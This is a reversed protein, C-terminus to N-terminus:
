SKRMRRLLSLLALGSACQIWRAHEPVPVLGKTVHDMEGLFTVAGGTTIHYFAPDDVSVDGV